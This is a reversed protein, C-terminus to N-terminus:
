PPSVPLLEECESGDEAVGYRAPVIELDDNM